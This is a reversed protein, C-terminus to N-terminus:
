TEPVVSIMTRSGWTRRCGTMQKCPARSQYTSRPLVVLGMAAALKLLEVINRAGLKRMIGARHAEITKLHRHTKEAIERNSRGEIILRLVRAEKPTLARAADPALGHSQQLISKVKQVFYAKEFPKEIFDVAGEKIAKVATPIDSYGTVILVPVWPIIEKVQELPQLGNKCMKLDTILLDCRRSRLRVLCEAAGRFCRVLIGSAELTERVMQDEDLVFVWKPSNDAKTMMM